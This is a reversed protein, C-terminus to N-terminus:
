RLAPETAIVPAYDHPESRVEHALPFEEPKLRALEKECFASSDSFWGLETSKALCVGYGMSAREDLPEAVELMQECFARQKADALPGTKVDHPIEATALSTAFSQAIMALRAAATISGAVDKTALVAEYKRTLAAGTEQHQELWANFRKMSAERHKAEFDLGRPFVLALFPELELDASAVLAQAYAYRAEIDDAPRNREYARIAQELAARADAVKKANRATVAFTTTTGKGCTRPTQKATVCLGDVGRISCSQKLLLQAIKSYAIVVRGAGGKTGFTRLYERLHKIADDGDYLATLSWMADASERPKKSGFMKIFYRTDEIAKARNGSAKRYFVADSMAAYADKEGAYKKAYEELIEAARDYMAIDGYVKGLRATARPALKSNPYQKRLLDFMRTASSIARAEEFSVGANYLLEDGTPSKPNANYIALYAEAVATYREPDKSEHAIRELEEARRYAAQGQIRKVTTALDARDRLFNPDNALENAFALMKEYDRLRNYGDLALNAAYEAVTSRPFRTVITRYIPLALDLHGSEGYARGKSFLLRPLEPDNPDAIELYRDIAAIAADWRAPRKAPDPENAAANWAADAAQVEAPKPAGLATAVLLCVVLAAKM